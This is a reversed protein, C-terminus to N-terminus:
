RLRTALVGQTIAIIRDASMIRSRPCPSVDRGYEDIVLIRTCPRQDPSTPMAASATGPVVLALLLLALPLRRRM